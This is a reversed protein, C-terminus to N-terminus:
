QSDGRLIDGLGVTRAKRHLGLAQAYRLWTTTGALYQAVDIPQGAALAAEDRMLLADLHMARHATRRELFSVQEEGGRDAVIAGVGEVVIRVDRGRRDLKAFAGDRLKRPLRARHPKLKGGGPHQGSGM